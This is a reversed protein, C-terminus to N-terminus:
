VHLPRVDECSQKIDAFPPREPDNVSIALTHTILRAPTIICLKTLLQTGQRLLTAPEAMAAQMDQQPALADRDVALSTAVKDRPPGSRADAYLGYVRPQFACVGM